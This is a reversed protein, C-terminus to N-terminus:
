ERSSPMPGCKEPRKKTETYKLELQGQNVLLRGEFRITKIAELAAAGGKAELNKAVLEDVTPTPGPTQADVLPLALLGTLLCLSLRLHMTFNQREFQAAACGSAFRTGDCAILQFANALHINCVIQM